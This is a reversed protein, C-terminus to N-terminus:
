AVIEQFSDKLKKCGIVKMVKLTLLEAFCSPIEILEHCKKLILQQLQPFSYTSASWQEIKSERINLYKLNLFQEDEVDWTQDEFSVKSLKLVELNPLKGIEYIVRESLFDAKINLKRLTCPLNFETASLQIDTWLNLSEIKNLFEEMYVLFLLTWVISFTPEREFVRQCERHYFLRYQQHVEGCSYNNIINPVWLSKEEKAKELCLERVLDHIVCKKIGYTSSKKVVFLLSPDVLDM